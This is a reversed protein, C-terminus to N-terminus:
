LLPKGDFDDPIPLNFIKLITPAIDLISVKPLHAAKIDPGQAMFIGIKQNEGLWKSPTEFIDKFGIAGSIHVGEGQDIILDPAKNLFEGKYIEEKRYVKKVIKVGNHELEELKKIIEERPARPNDNQTLGVTMRLYKRLIEVMPIRRDSLAVESHCVPHLYIPGQGSAVAFSKEWDILNEKATKAVAGSSSPFISKLRPFYKKLFNKLGFVSVIKALRAQTLGAKLYFSKQFDKQQDKLILYGHRALWQNINFKVKVQSSGHDSFIIFNTEPFAARLEGIGRDIIQWARLLKEGSGFFHRLVNILYITLALFDLNYEKALDIAAVFRKEIISYIEEIAKQNNVSLFSITKPLVRWGYKERLVKELERPFAFGTELADPGGAAMFGNVQHPPYCTPMNLIGVKYGAQSLIDWVEEGAFSRADPVIIKKNQWDINEWWFVGLKGPNKGTSFCKWNPSTVPPLCVNLPCSVGSKQLAALNPLLGSDIWPAILNFGAGDLGLAILKMAKM